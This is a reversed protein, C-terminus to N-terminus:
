PELGYRGYVLLEVGESKWATRGEGQHARGAKDARSCLDCAAPRVGQHAAAKCKITIAKCLAAAVSVVPIIDPCQSRSTWRTCRMPGAAAHRRGPMGRRGHATFIDLVTERCRIM